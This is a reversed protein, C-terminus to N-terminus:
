GAAAPNDNAAGIASLLADTEANIEAWEEPTPDRGEAIFMEVKDATRDFRDRVDMALDVGASLLRVLKIISLLSNATLM